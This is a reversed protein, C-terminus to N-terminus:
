LKLISLWSHSITCIKHRGAVGFSVADMEREYRDEPYGSEFIVSQQPGPGKSM